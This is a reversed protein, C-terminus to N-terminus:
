DFDREDEWNQSRRLQKQKQTLQSEKAQKKRELLAKAENKQQERELSKWVSKVVSHAMTHSSGKVQKWGWKPIKNEKVGIDLFFKEWEKPSVVVDKGWSIQEERFSMAKEVAKVLSEESVNIDSRKSWNELTKIAENKDHGTLLLVRSFTQIHKKLKDPNDMNSSIANELLPKAKEIATQNMKFQFKKQAMSGGKLVLQGIRKRLDKYANTRARELDKADFSYHSAIEEAYSLYNEVLPKFQPQELLWDTTEFTRKLVEDPMFALAIRGKQPMVESLEHLKMALIKNEEDHLRPAISSDSVQGLTKLELSIDNAPSKLQELQKVTDQIENKSFDRIFDRMVTQEQYLRTRENAYIENVFVRKVDNREGKTLVGRSRKPEKEWFMLHVHPHGKEEHFAAVWRLNTPGIKMKHAADMVTARLMKEWDRKSTYGLKIADDERLSLIARWVIGNHEKLERQVAKMDPKVDPDQGFLGHSGPRENAYKAHGEPSDPHIGFDEDELNFQTDTRDAGSRTGIYQAHAANKSNNQSNPEYFRIKMVFPANMTSM